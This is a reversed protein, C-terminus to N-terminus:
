QQELSSTWIDRHMKWGDSTNKWIVIGKGSDIVENDSGSLTYNSMEIATDDHQELEIIDIKIYRIGMDMASQWYENIALKGKIFDSGSPLLMGNETYFGALKTLDGNSFTSEFKDSLERIASQIDLTQTTM